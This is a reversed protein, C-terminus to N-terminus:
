SQRRPPTSGCSSPLRPTARCAARSITSSRASTTPSYDVSFEITVLSVSERSTSRVSEVHSLSSVAEEIPKTVSSEVEDPAAGQYITQVAVIPMSVDPFSDVAMRQYTLWGVVAIVLMVMTIFVPRRISVDSLWM